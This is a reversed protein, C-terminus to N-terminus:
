CGFYKKLVMNELDDKKNETIKNSLYLDNIKELQQDLSLQASEPHPQASIAEGASIEKKISAMIESIDTMANSLNSLPVVSIASGPKNSFPVNDGQLMTSNKGIRTTKAKKNMGLEARRKKNEDGHRPGPTVQNDNNENESDEKNEDSADSDEDDDDGNTKEAKAKRNQRQNSKYNIAAIGQAAKAFKDKNTLIIREKMMEEHNMQEVIDNHPMNITEKIKYLSNIISKLTQDSVENMYAKKISFNDTIFKAASINNRGIETDPLNNLVTRSIKNFLDELYDQSMTPGVHALFATSNHITILFKAYADKKSSKLQSHPMKGRGLLSYEYLTGDLLAPTLLFNM